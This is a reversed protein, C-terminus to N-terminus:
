RVDMKINDELGVGLPREEEPNGVLIRLATKEEHM